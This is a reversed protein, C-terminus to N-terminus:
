FSGTLTLQLRRGYNPITLLYGDDSAPMMARDDLLNKVGVFYRLRGDKFAGSLGVNLWFSDGTKFLTNEDVVGDEDIDPVTLRASNYISEISLVAMTSYLPVMAKLSIMHNPMNAEITEPNEIDKPLTLHQFSYSLQLMSLIGPKWRFGLEAGEVRLTKEMNAYQFLEETSQITASCPYVECGDDATVTMIKDESKRMSVLRNIWNIYGSAIFRLEETLEQTHELELSYIQEPKTLRYPNPIQTAGDFFYLEYVSPERFATSGLLKTVGGQIIDHLIFAMRASWAIRLHSEDMNKDDDKLLTERDPGELWVQQLFTQCSGDGNTMLCETPSYQYLDIRGGAHITLHRGLRIEDSLSGSFIDRKTKIMLDDWREIMGPLGSPSSLLSDQFAKLQNPDKLGDLLEQPFVPYIEQMWQETDEHKYEIAITLRQRLFEPTRYRLEGGAWWSSAEEDYPDVDYFYTANYNMVDFYFRASFDGQKMKKDFRGEIFGRLDNVFAGPRNIATTYNGTGLDKKRSNVYGQLTFDGLRVRADAHYAREGDQNELNTLKTDAPLEQLPRLQRAEDFSMNSENLSRYAGGSVIIDFNKSTYAGTARGSVTQSTGASGTVEANRDGLNSRTVINIAGFVASSGYIASVPGRIVEIREVDALDISFDRGIYAQGTYADNLAHGNYLILIRSNYGGPPSIGRMGISEYMRDNSFYLGRVARLAEPLTSYGFAQIEDSSIVTVSAPAESTTTESKTAATTIEAAFRLEAHLPSTDNEKIVVEQEFPQMGRMTVRIKHTGVPLTHVVNPTIGIALDNVSVLAGDRNATVHLAGMVPPLAQLDVTLTTRADPTIAVPLQMSYHGEAAISLIHNGPAMVKECPLTCLLEDDAGTNLHVKAGEPSGDLVLTGTIFELDSELRAQTGLVLNVQQTVERHGPLALIVTTKGPDIALTKPTVGLSGLNKRDIYIEAGPPTTEIRLTAMRPALRQISDEAIKRAAPDSVEALYEDYYRFAENFKRLQEYCRAINILTSANRVLRNSHFFEVLAEEYERIKYFAVGRQFRLEAEDSTNDALAVPINVLEASAFALALTLSFFIRGFRSLM